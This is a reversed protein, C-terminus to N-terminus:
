EYRALTYDSYVSQLADFGPIDDSSIGWGACVQAGVDSLGSLYILSDDTVYCPSFDGVFLSLLHYMRCIHLDSGMTAWFAM